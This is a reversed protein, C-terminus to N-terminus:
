ISTTQNTLAAEMFEKFRERKGTDAIYDEAWGLAMEVTEKIGQKRHYRAFKALDEDYGKRGREYAEKKTEELLSSLETMWWKFHRINESSIHKGSICTCGRYEAVESVLEGTHFLFNELKEGRWDSQVEAPTHPPKLIFCCKGHSKYTFKEHCECGCNPELGEKQESFNDDAFKTFSDKQEQHCKCKPNSCGLIVWNEKYPENEFHLGLDRKLACKQCCKRNDTTM